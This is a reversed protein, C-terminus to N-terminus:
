FFVQERTNIANILLKLGLDGAPFDEIEIKTQIWRVYFESVSLKPSQFDMIASHIPLFTNFCEDILSWSADNLKLKNHRLRQYAEANSYIDKIM